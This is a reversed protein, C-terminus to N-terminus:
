FRALPGEISLYKNIKKISDGDAGSSGWWIHTSYAGGRNSFATARAAATSSLARRPWGIGQLVSRMRNADAACASIARRATATSPSTCGSLDEFAKEVSAAKRTPYTARAADRSDAGKLSGCRITLIPGSARAGRRGKLAADQCGRLSTRQADDDRLDKVHQADDRPRQPVKRSAEIACTSAHLNTSKYHSWRANVSRLSLPSDAGANIAYRLSSNTPSGEDFATERRNGAARCRFDRFINLTSKFAGRGFLDFVAACVRFFSCVFM